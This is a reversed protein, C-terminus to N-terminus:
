VCLPFSYRVFFVFQLKGHIWNPGASVYVCVCVRCCGLLLQVRPTRPTQQLTVTYLTCLARDIDRHGERPPEIVMRRFHIYLTM